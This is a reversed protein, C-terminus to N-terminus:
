SGALELFSRRYAEMCNTLEFQKEVRARGARGMAEREIPHEIMWAIAEAV